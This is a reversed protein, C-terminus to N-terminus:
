RQSVASSAGNGSRGGNLARSRLSHPGDTQAFRGIHEAIAGAIMPQNDESLIELHAGPVTVLSIPGRIFKRWGHLPDDMKTALWNFAHEARILLFASDEVHTPRYSKQARSQRRWLRTMREALEPDNVATQPVEALDPRFAKIARRRIASARELVYDRQGALDRGFFERAHAILREPLPLREPYGPAFGDFSILLPVSRGRLKLRRALEFAALAGFSFGGLIIPGDGCAAIIEDEYLEAMEEITQYSLDDEGMLDIVHIPQDKGLFRPLSRYTFATGVVGPILILPPHSGGANFAQLHSGSSTMGFARDILESLAAITPKGLISALPVDIGFRTKVRSVLM